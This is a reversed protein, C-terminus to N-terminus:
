PNQGHNLWPEVIPKSWPEVMTSRAKLFPWWPWFGHTQGRGFMTMMVMTSLPTWKEFAHDVMTMIVTTLLPQCHDMEWLMTLWPWSSRPRGHNVITWKEFCPWGHDHHGHDVMTLCHEMEWFCPWGHDDHGDKTMTLWPWWLSPWGHNVITGNKLAHDVM